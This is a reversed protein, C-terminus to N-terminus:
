KRAPEESSVKTSSEPELFDGFQKQLKAYDMLDLAKIDDPSVECLNSFFRIEREADSMGNSKELAIQDRVKPRRMQLVSTEVGDISIPFDLEIAVKPSTIM